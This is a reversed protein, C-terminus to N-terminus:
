LRFLKKLTGGELTDRDQLTARVAPFRGTLDKFLDLLQDKTQKELFSPLTQETSKKPRAPHPPEFDEEEEDDEVDEDWEDEGVPEELLALRRDKEDVEPVGRNQKLLELYELVVAVAHKCTGGYPCTCASVLEREEFDVLTAYRETGRVWAILGGEPTRALDQVQRGRQYGQGRSIITSGAWAHLDDWTLDRFRDTKQNKQAM